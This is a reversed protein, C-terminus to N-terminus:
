RFSRHFLVECVCDDGEESCDGNGDGRRVLSRHFSFFFGGPLGELVLVFRVEFFDDILIKAANVVLADGIHLLFQVVHFLPVHTM